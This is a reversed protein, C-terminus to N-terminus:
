VVLRLVGIVLGAVIPILFNDDVAWGFLKLDFGELGMAFFSALWAEWWPVFFMAALAGAIIGGIVGEVKKKRNGFYDVYGFQGILPAAADGVTLILMVALFVDKPLVVMVILAGMLFFIAGLAPNEKINQPGTSYIFYVSQMNM